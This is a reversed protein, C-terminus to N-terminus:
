RIINFRDRWIHMYNSKVTIFYTGSFLESLELVLEKTNKNIKQTMQSLVNGNIDTITVFINMEDTAKINVIFRGDNIIQNRTTITLDPIFTYKIAAVPLCLPAVQLWGDKKEIDVEKDSNILIEKLELNTFNPDSALAIGEIWLFEGSKKFLDKVIEEGLSGKIVGNQYEFTTEIPMEGSRLLVNYPYFLWRDFTITYDLKTLNVRPLGDQLSVAVLFKDGPAVSYEGISIRNKYREQPIRALLEVSFTDLCNTKQIIQLQASYDGDVNGTFKVPLTIIRSPELSIPLSLQYSFGVNDPIIKIEKLEIISATNNGINITRTAEDNIWISGFDLRTPSIALRPTTLEGMVDVTLNYNCVKSLLSFTANYVGDNKFEGPKLLITLDTSNNPEVILYDQPVSYFGASSGSQTIILTDTLSGRNQYTIKLQKDDECSEFKGFDYNYIKPTTETKRFEGTLKINVNKGQMNKSEVILEANHVGESGPFYEIQLDVTENPMIVIPIIPKNTIKFHTEDPSIELTTITDALIGTNTIRINENKKMPNCTQRGFDIATKNFELSPSLSQINILLCQEAPCEAEAMFCLNARFSSDLLPILNFTFDITQGPSIDVPLNPSFNYSFNTLQPNLYVKTIKLDITGTNTVKVLRQNPQNTIFIGDFFAPSLRIGGEISEGKVAIKITDFCPLATIVLTDFFIGRTKPKFSIFGKLTDTLLSITRPFISTPFNNTFHNKIFYPKDISLPLNGTKFFSVPISLSDGLCIRGFDINKIKTLLNAFGYEGTLILELPNKNGRATTVDNNELRLRTVFRGTAAPNFNLIITDKEGPLLTIPIIKGSKWGAIIFGAMPDILRASKIILSDNGTNKIEFELKGKNICELKVEKSSADSNIIPSVGYARVTIFTDRDCPFLSVKFRAEQWGTDQLQITFKTEVGMTTVLVPLNVSFGFENSGSIKQIMTIREGTVEATWRIAKEYKFGCVARNILILTDSPVATARIANGTLPINFQRTGETIIELNATRNGGQTPNFVIIVRQSDCSNMIFNQSPEIVRFDLPNSGGLSWSGSASRFSLNKVWITDYKPSGICFEGFNISTKSVKQTSPSLKYVGEGVVWGNNANIFWLDDLNGRDIGCNRLEWSAGADSTYYVAQNYGCAWGTRGDILFTGFMPTGVRFQTWSNGLNTSFRMGGDSGGGQCTTGAYPVLFSTGLHTIEEQWVKTGSNAYVQWSAGGDTTNWIRGSSVAFGRGNADYLIVDTMGSEPETGTFLTWTSGGDTTKWFHQDTVCGDGVVIGNLEDVFYCGWFFMGVGADAPRIDFWTVGGNTSKFIGDVGSTYGVTRSPFHVSELHYAGSITSGAWTNGGDTTRIVMGNFGCAWGYNPDGPLFYIDLWYNSSYGIPLNVKEWYQSKLPILFVLILIIKLIIKLNLKM